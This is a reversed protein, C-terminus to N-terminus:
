LVDSLKVNALTEAIRMSLSLIIPNNTSNYVENMATVISSLIIEDPPKVLTYYGRKATTIIGKTILLKVLNSAMATSIGQHVSLDVIRLPEESEALQIVILIAQQTQQSLM